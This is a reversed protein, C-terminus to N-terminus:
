IKGKKIKSLNEKIKKKYGTLNIKKKTKSKNKKKHKNILIIMVILILVILVWWYWCFIFGGLEIGLIEFPSIIEFDSEFKDYVNEGYITELVFTYKGKSLILEEFSKRLIKETEVTISGIESYLINQQNDIISYTLNVTTAVDGFNEFTIVAILDKADTLVANELFMSIDFLQKVTGKEVDIQITRHSEGTVLNYSAKVKLQYTGSAIGEPILLSAIETKEENSGFYIVDSGSSIITGNLDEIWFEMTVDHNINGVGKVFYTFDFYDGINLRSDIELIKVDFQIGAGTGGGGGTTTPTTTEECGQGYLGCSYLNSGYTNAQILPVVLILLVFFFVIISKNNTNRM